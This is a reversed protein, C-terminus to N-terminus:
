SKGEKSHYLSFNPVWDTLTTTAFFMFNFLLFAPYLILDKIPRLHCNGFNNGSKQQNFAESVERTSIPDDTVPMYIQQEVIIDDVVPENEPAYLNKFYKFTEEGEPKEHNKQELYIVPVLRNSGM